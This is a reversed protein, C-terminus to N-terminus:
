ALKLLKALKLLPKYLYKKLWDRLLWVLGAATLGVVVGGLIDTPWHTATVIRSLGVLVSTALLAHGVKRWGLLYAYTTLAVLFATHDSPFSQDPRHFFIEKVNFGAAAPRPRYYFVKILRSLLQWAVVGSFTMALLSERYYPLKTKVFWAILLAVPVLYVLWESLFRFIFDVPASQGILSNFLNLTSEDFKTIM